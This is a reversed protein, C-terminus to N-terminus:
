MRLMDTESVKHMYARQRADRDERIDQEYDMFEAIGAVGLKEWKRATEHSVRLKDGVRKWGLPIARLFVAQRFPLGLAYLWPLVEDIAAIGERTAPLYTRVLLTGWGEAWWLEGPERQFDPWQSKYGGPLGYKPMPLRRLTQVALTMRERIYREKGKRDYEATLSM